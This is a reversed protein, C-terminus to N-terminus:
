SSFRYTCERCYYRQIEGNKTYRIGDKWNRKSKCNPCKVEEKRNMVWKRWSKNNMLPQFGSFLPLQPIVEPSTELKTQLHPNVPGYSPNLLDALKRRRFLCPGQVFLCDAKITWFLNWNETYRSWNHQQWRFFIYRNEYLSSYQWASPSVTPTWSTFSFYRQLMLPLSTTTVLAPPPVSTHQPCSISSVM